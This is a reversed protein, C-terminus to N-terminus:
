KNEKKIEKIVEIMGRGLDMYSDNIIKKPIEEHYSYPTIKYHSEKKGKSVKTKYKISVNGLIEEIMCFVDRVKLPYQGSIIFTKNKYEEDLSKITLKAADVVHIYERTESGDGPYEIKNTAIAQKLYRYISNTKPAGYGYVTGYQLITYDLNYYKKYDRILSECAKKTSAYIGGSNGHAYLSSAFIFRKVKNKKCAELILTNGFINVRVAEVPNKICEELDAIGAFNFVIKAGKIVNEIKERDLIEGQVFKIEKEFKDKPAALDYIWVEFNNRLLQAVIHKGLFGSGGFVVVKENKM